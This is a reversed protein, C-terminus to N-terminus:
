LTRSVVILPADAQPLTSKTALSSQGNRSIVATNERIVIVDVNAYRSRVGPYSKCPRVQGYLDLSKRLGVNVSTFGEAIPTTVPGKLAVKNRQVSLIVDAPLSTGYKAFATVGADHRDTLDRALLELGTADPM